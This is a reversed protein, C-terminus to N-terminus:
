LHNITLIFGLWPWLLWAMASVILTWRKPHYPHLFPLVALVLFLLVFGVNPFLAHYQFRPIATIAALPGILTCIIEYVSWHLAGFTSLFGMALCESFTWAMVALRWRVQKKIVATRVETPVGTSTSM